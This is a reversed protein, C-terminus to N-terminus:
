DNKINGYYIRQAKRLMESYLLDQKLKNQKETLDKLEICHMSDLKAKLEANEQELQQVHTEHLEGAWEEWARKNKDLMEDLNDPVPATERTELCGTVAIIYELVMRMDTDLENRCISGYKHYPCGQCNSDIDGCIKLAKNIRKVMETFEQITEM